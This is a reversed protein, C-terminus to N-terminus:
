IERVECVEMNMGRVRKQTASRIDIIQDIPSGRLSKRVKCQCVRIGKITGYRKGLDTLLNADSGNKTHHDTYRIM